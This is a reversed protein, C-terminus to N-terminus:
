ATEQLPARMLSLPDVGLVAAIEYLHDTNFPRKCSLRESLAARSMAIQDALESQNLGARGMAARVEGAIIQRSPSNM